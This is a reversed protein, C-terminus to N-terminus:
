VFGQEMFQAAPNKEITEKAQEMIKAAPDQEM